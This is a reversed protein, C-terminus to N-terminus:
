KQDMELLTDVARSIPAIVEDLYRQTHKVGVDAINDSKKSLPDYDSMLKIKSSLAPLLLRLTKAIYRDSVLVITAWEILELTLAKRRHASVDIGLSDLLEVIGVPAPKGEYTVYLGASEVAVDTRNGLKSRAIAAGVVSRSLNRRCVFLLNMRDNTM